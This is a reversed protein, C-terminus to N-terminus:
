KKTIATVVQRSLMVQVALLHVKALEKNRALLEARKELTALEELEQKTPSQSMKM